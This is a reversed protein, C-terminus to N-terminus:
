LEHRAAIIAVTAGYIVGTPDGDVKYFIAVFIHYDGNAGDSLTQLDNGGESYAGFYFFAAEGPGITQSYSTYAQPNYPTSEPKLIYCRYTVHPAGQQGPSVIPIQLWNLVCSSHLKATSQYGNTLKLRFVAKKDKGQNIIWAGLPSNWNNAPYYVYQFDGAAFSFTFPSVQGATPTMTSAFKFTTGINGRETGIKLDYADGVTLPITTYIWREAGSGIWASCNSTIHNALSYHRPTSTTTDNLWIEVIHAAVAGINSVKFRLYTGYGTESIVIRENFREWERQDRELTTQRYADYQFFQWALVNFVMVAVGVLFVGSIVGSVGKRERLFTV